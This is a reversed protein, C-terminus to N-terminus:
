YSIESISEMTNRGPRYPLLSFYGVVKNDIEIDYLTYNNM